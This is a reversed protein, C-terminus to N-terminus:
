KQIQALAAKSVRAVVNVQPDVVEAIDYHVSTGVVMAAENPNLHYEDQIWTTLETTAIKLADGLSGAIGMAMLDQDDEARPGAISKRPLLKVTFEVDMSTELANGNLEGDGQMAHADGLFLLAGEESVPLYLTTGERIRNYDMNGGWSGLWQARFSQKDGPAVGVCGLMPHLAIKYNKLKNTPKAPSATNSEIDLKWDGNVQNDPKEDRYYDSTLAVPTISSTSFASDRNLRIRNFHIALVDGPIAGDVYFPGTQPNGGPSQSVGNKDVGHADVTTTKVTDGPNIHMVPAVSSTFVRQYETPVFVRTQPATDSGPLRRMVLETVVTGRTLNGRFQLDSFEGAVKGYSAGNELLINMQMHNGQLEGELKLDNLVGTIQKGALKLEVHAPSYEEGNKVLHVIWTGTVNAPQSAAIQQAFTCPVTCVIASLTLFLTAIPLPQFIRKIM